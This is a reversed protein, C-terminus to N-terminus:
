ATRDLLPLCFVFAPKLFDLARKLNSMGLSLLSTIRRFLPYSLRDIQDLTRKVALKSLEIHLSEVHEIALLFAVVFLQALHQSALTAEDALQLLGNRVRVAM